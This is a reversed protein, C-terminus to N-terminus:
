RAEEGRQVFECNIQNMWLALKKHPEYRWFSISYDSSAIAITNSSKHVFHVVDMVSTYANGDKVEM